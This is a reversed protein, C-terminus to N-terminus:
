TILDLDIKEKSIYKFYKVYYKALEKNKSNFQREKEFAKNFRIKAQKYEETTRVNEEVLGIENKPYKNLLDSAINVEEIITRCDLIYKKLSETSVKKNKVKNYKEIQELIYSM